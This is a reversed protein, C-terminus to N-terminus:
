LTLDRDSTQENSVFMEESTAQPGQVEISESPSVMSTGAGAEYAAIADPDAGTIQMDEIVEAQPLAGPVRGDGGLVVEDIAAAMNDLSHPTLVSTSESLQDFRETELPTDGDRLASLGSPLKYEPDQWTALSQEFGRDNLEAEFFGQEQQSWHYLVAGGLAAMALEGASMRKYTNPGLTRTRERRRVAIEEREVRRELDRARKLARALTNDIERMTHAKKSM